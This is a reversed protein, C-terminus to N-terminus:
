TFFVCKQHLYTQLFIYCLNTASKNSSIEGPYVHAYSVRMHTYYDPDTEDDIDGTRDVNIYRREKMAAREAQRVSMQKHIHEALRNTAQIDVDTYNVRRPKPVVTATARDTPTPAPVRPLPMPQRRDAGFEVQTYHTSRPTKCPIDTMFFAVEEKGEAEDFAGQVEFSEQASFKHTKPPSSDSSDSSEDAKRGPKLNRDIAPPVHILPPKKSRDILPPIHVFSSEDVLSADGGKARSPSLSASSTDSQQPASPSVPNELPRANSQAMMFGNPLMENGRSFQHPNGPAMINTLTRQGLGSNGGDLNPILTASRSKTLPEHVGRSQQQHTPPFLMTQSDAIPTLYGLNDGLRPTFFASTSLPMAETDGNGVNGVSVRSSDQGAGYNGSSLRRSSVNDSLSIGIPLTQAIPNQQKYLGTKAAAELSYLTNQTDTAQYHDAYQSGQVPQSINPGKYKSTTSPLTSAMEPSM